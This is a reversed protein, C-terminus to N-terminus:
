NKEVALTLELLQSDFVPKIAIEKGSDLVLYFNTYSKGTKESKTTKIVLKM